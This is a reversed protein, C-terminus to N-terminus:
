TLEKKFTITNTNSTRQYDLDSVMNEIIHIGLGGVPRDEIPAAQDVEPADKLPNFPIGDDLVKCEIYEPTHTLTVYIYHNDHDTYGYFITNSILEELVLNLQNQIDKKLRHENAFLEVVHQLKNLEQIDNLFHVNLPNAIPEIQHNTEFIVFTCDDVKPHDGCFDNWEQLLTQKLSSASKETSTMWQKVPEEGLLQGEKNQAENLGDTYFLTLSENPLVISKSAYFATPNIGLVIGNTTPLESLQQNKKNLLLPLPHGANVYNLERSQTNYIGFFVTVFLTEKNQQCLLANVENMIDSPNSAHSLTSRIATLTAAMFLAASIGKGSVDGICIYILDGEQKVDYFDGGIDKSAELFTEISIEKSLSASNPSGLLNTQIDKAITLEHQINAKEINLVKIEGIYEQLATCMNETSHALSAIEDNYTQIKQLQSRNQPSLVFSKDQLTMTITNLAQLPSTLQAVKRTILLIGVLALIGILSLQKAILIFSQKKIKNLDMTVFIYGLSGNLIAAPQILIKNELIEAKNPNIPTTNIYSSIYSPIIPSFTHCTITKKEDILFIGDIGEFDVYDNILDQIISLDQIVLLLDIYDAVIQSSTKAKEKYENLLTQYTEFSTFAGISIAILIILTIIPKLLTKLLSKQPKM